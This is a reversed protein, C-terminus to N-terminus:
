KREPSLVCLERKEDLLGFKTAIEAEALPVSTEAAGEPTSAYLISIVRAYVSTQNAYPCTLIRDANV